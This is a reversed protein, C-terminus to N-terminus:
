RAAAPGAMAVTAPRLDRDTYDDWLPCNLDIWTKIRLIEDPTLAIDHHGANLTEWLKSKLSGFSMPPLKECGGSNWGCDVFHVLGRSILTRYSAPIKDADLEARFDLKDPHKADHCKVCHADLVPQVVKEFSFPVAGWSPPEIDRVIQATPRGKEPPAMQRSEHCGICSRKEGPQLHVVSRMRQLENFDKDLVEFYFVRGSPAKFRASGDEDVPVLGLSTKAVYAPWGGPGSVKDVPSAYFNFFAEHDKRYEGNELPMLRHRVEEVVRLYKVAGRPVAPALGAYVDTLTFEGPEDEAAAEADQLAPPASVARFPTPCMCDLGEPDLTEPDMYLLERNGHRDILYIGFQKRPAHSVLFYDRSVPYPERFCEELPPAGPWPVEPTLCAIAKENFRGKSTDLLAIPGNLDGFHSILTCVIEKTGPVERGNAYGNPQIIDNSFVLEPHRGDLRIAWLTHGFDAGKDVYEWRTWIIRGDNMVSPAWETLNALSVPRIHGGAADMRFLVSSQPRWCFVRCACRTSIFALDGNPLPCPWFDHFPGDTIQKLDSGDPKVSMIHYYGPESDRYGFYVMTADFNAAPNRAIGRGADFLRTFAAEEPVLGAGEKWPTHMLYIGGGPRFAADFYDSYNHSPRFAHRKVFLIRGLSKLDPDRFMLKRKAMRAEALLDRADLKEGRQRARLCALRAREAEVTIGKAAFRAIMDEMLALTRELPDYRFLHLAFEHGSEDRAKFDFQPGIPGQEGIVPIDAARGSELALSEFGPVNTALTAAAHLVLRIAFAARDPSATEAIAMPSFAFTVPRGMAGVHKGGMGLGVRIGFEVAGPFLSQPLRFEFRAPNRAFTGEVIRSSALEIKDGSKRYTNFTLQGDAYELVGCDNGAGDSIVALRRGLLRDAEVAFLFDADMRCAWVRFCVLPGNDWDYPSAVRVTGQSAAVRWDSLDSLAPLPLVDDGAHRPYEEVRGNYPVLAPSLDARGHTKLWAHEEGLFSARVPDNRPIFVAPDPADPTSPVVASPADGQTRASVQRVTTWERGDLSLRVEFKVPVRDRFVGNRDRSFVVRAIEAPEPLAIQAWEEGTGGAIWSRANGYQGDNLHHIAHISYGTICSSASAAAGPGLALNAEQPPFPPTHPSTDASADPGYIELEDICAQSGDNVAQIVFRVYQAPQAPFVVENAKDPVIVTDAQVGAAVICMWWLLAVRCKM